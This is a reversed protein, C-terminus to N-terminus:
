SHSARYAAIVKQPEGEAKLEGGGLWAMRDCM